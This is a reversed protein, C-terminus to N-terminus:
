GGFAGKVGEKFRAFLGKEQQAPSDLDEGSVAAYEKLLRKQESNLKTPVKVIIKVQLDGKKGSRVNPVGHGKLRFLTESQTGAPIDLDTEGDITPVKISSGLAARPFSVERECYLDDNARQFVRHPKVSIFVYLDGAPGNKLGSEGEGPVRVRFGDDVGAPIKVMIKRKKKVRGLGDCEECPSTIVTGEGRCASCPGTRIFRGFMTNQTIREQGTGQCKDCTHSSAGDSAGTGFCKSCTKIVKVELEKEVGSVVEELTLTTDARVDNGRQPQSRYARRSDGGGGRFFVDFLDDFGFGFDGFGGSFGGFDSFGGSGPKFADHGFQDYAGRKKSDSLVEYAENIEKFRDEATKKDVDKSVDPHYKRAMNRYAQKIDGESASRDIGLIEYYDKKSL